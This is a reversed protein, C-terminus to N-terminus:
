ALRRPLWPVGVEEAVKKLELGYPSMDVGCVKQLSAHLPFNLFMEGIDLDGM